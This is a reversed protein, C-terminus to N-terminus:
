SDRYHLGLRDWLVKLLKLLFHCEGLIDLANRFLDMGGAIKVM